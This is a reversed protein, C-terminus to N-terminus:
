QLIQATPAYMNPSTSTDFSRFFLNEGACRKDTGKQVFIQSPENDSCKTNNRARNRDVIVIVSSPMEKMIM